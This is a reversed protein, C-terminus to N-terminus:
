ELQSLKKTSIGEKGTNTNLLCFFDNYKRKRRKGEMRKEARGRRVRGKGKGKRLQTVINIMWKSM